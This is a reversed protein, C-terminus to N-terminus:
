LFRRVYFLTTYISLLLLDLFNSFLVIYNIKCSHLVNESYFTTCCKIKKKETCIKDFIRQASCLWDLNYYDMDPTSLVRCTTIYVKVFLLKSGKRLLLLLLSSFTDMPCPHGWKHLQPHISTHVSPRISSPLDLHGGKLPPM